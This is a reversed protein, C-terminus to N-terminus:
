PRVHERSKLFRGLTQSGVYALITHGVLTVLNQLTFVLSLYSQVPDVMSESMRLPPYPSPTFFQSGSRISM